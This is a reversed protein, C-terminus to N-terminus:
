AAASAHGCIGRFFGAIRPASVEPMHHARIWEMGARALRRRLSEDAELKMIADIWEAPNRALFGCGAGEVLTRNVGVPAAVIPMGNGLFQLPKLTAKGHSWPDDSLPVLGVHCAAFAQAQAEPSWQRNIVRLNPLELPEHAVVWLEVNFCRDGLMQLIPALSRLYHFTSKSGIWILRLPDGPTRSRDQFSVTHPEVCLPFHEVTKCHPRALEVLRQSGALVGRCARVTSRFKLYRSLSFHGRNTASYGVPDDFDFVLARATARIKGLDWPWAVHRHLWCLDYGREAKLLASKEKPARPLLRCEVHVGQEALLPIMQEVRLTFSYGRASEKAKRSLALVRLPREM